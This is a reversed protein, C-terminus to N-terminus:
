STQLQSLVQRMEEVTGISHCTVTPDIKRLFGKLTKGPGVEVFTDFGDAILREMSQQWRVSSSVQRSLLDKVRSKETVYSADVNTVYPMMPDELNVGELETRLAAGAEALFPSHFPGSM